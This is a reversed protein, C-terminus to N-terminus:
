VRPRNPVEFLAYSQDLTLACAQAHALPAMWDRSSSAPANRQLLGPAVARSRPDTELKRPRTQVRAQRRCRRAARPSELLTRVQGRRHLDGPHRRPCIRVDAPRGRHPPPRLFARDRTNPEPRIGDGRFHDRAPARRVPAGARVQLRPRPLERLYAEGELRGLEVAPREGPRRCVRLGRRRAERNGCNSPLAYDNERRAREPPSPDATSPRSRARALKITIAALGSALATTSLWGDVGEARRLVGALYGLFPLFLLMGVLEVRRGTDGGFLSGGFLLLVYPIGSAAGLRALIRDSM